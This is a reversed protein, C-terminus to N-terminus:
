ENVKGEEELILDLNKLGKDRLYFVQRLSYFIYDAIEQYEKNNIYHQYLVQKQLPDEIKELTEIIEAQLRLQDATKSKLKEKLKELKLITQETPSGGSNFTLKMYKRAKLDSKEIDKIVAQLYTINKEIQLYRLLYIESYLM